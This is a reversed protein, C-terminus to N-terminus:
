RIKKTVYTCKFYKGQYFDKTWGLTFLHKISQQVGQLGKCEFSRPYTIGQYPHCRVVFVDNGIDVIEFEFARRGKQCFFAVYGNDSTMRNLIHYEYPYLGGKPIPNNNSSRITFDHIKCGISKVFNYIDLADDKSIDQNKLSVSRFLM